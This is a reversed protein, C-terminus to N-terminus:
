ADEEVAHLRSQPDGRREAGLRRFRGCGREGPRQRLKGPPRLRQWVDCLRTGSAPGGPDPDDREHRRRGTARRPWEVDHPICGPLQDTQRKGGSRRAGYRRERQVVCRPKKRASELSPRQADRQVCARRYRFGPHQRRTEGRQLRGRYHNPNRGAGSRAAGGSWTLAITGAALLIWWRAHRM